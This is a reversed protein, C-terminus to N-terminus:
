TAKSFASVEQQEMVEACFRRACKTTDDVSAWKAGHVGCCVVPQRVFTQACWGPRRSNRQMHHAAPIKGHWQRIAHSSVDLKSQFLLAAGQQIPVHWSM